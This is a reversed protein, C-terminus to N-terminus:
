LLEMNSHETMYEVSSSEVLIGNAMVGYNQYINLHELAFHWITVPENNTYPIARRDLYIPVRYHNETVYVDGMNKRLINLANEPLNRMLVSHRGTLCLPENFESEPNVEKPSLSYLRDRVDPADAPNELTKYGIHSVPKYGNMFTKVLTGKRLTEVPVYSETNTIPDFHLIKSGQLFCPTNTSNLNNLSINTLFIASDTGSPHDSIFTLNYTGPITVTFQYTRTLFGTTVMPVPSINLLTYTGNSVNVGMIHLASTIANVGTDAGSRRRNDFQLNHIGPNLNLSQFMKFTSTGHQFIVSQTGAPLGTGFDTNGDGLFINGGGSVDFKWNPISPHTANTTNSIQLINVSNDGQNVAQFNGNLILNSM